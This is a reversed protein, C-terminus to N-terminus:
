QYKSWHLVVVTLQVKFWLRNSGNYICEASPWLFYWSSDHVYFGWLSRNMDTTSTETARNQVETEPNNSTYLPTNHTIHFRDQCETRRIKEMTKYARRCLLNLTDNGTKQPGNSLFPETHSQLVSAKFPAYRPFCNILRLFIRSM